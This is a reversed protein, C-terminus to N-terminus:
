RIRLGRLSALADEHISAPKKRQIVAPLGASPAEGTLLHTGKLRCCNPRPFLLGEGQEKPGLGQM